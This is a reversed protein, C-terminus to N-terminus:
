SIILAYLDKQFIEYVRCSMHIKPLEQNVKSLASISFFNDLNNEKELNKGLFLKSFHLFGFKVLMNRIHEALLPDKTKDVQADLIDGLKKLPEPNYGLDLTYSGLHWEHKVFAM